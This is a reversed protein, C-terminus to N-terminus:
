VDGFYSQRSALLRRKKGLANIGSGSLPDCTGSKEDEDESIEKTDDSVRKRRSSTDTDKTFTQNATNEADDLNKM